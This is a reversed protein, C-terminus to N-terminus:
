MLEGGYILLGDDNLPSFGEESGRLLNLGTPIVLSLIQKGTWMALPKVIAPQPIVGDWDPVWLLINM